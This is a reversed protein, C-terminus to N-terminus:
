ASRKCIADSTQQTTSRSGTQRISTPKAPFAKHLAMRTSNSDQPLRVQKLSPNKKSHATLNELTPPLATPDNWYTRYMKQCVRDIISRKTASLGEAGGLLVECLSLVYSCKARIPDGDATSVTKDLDLPNIADHSGPSIVVTSARLEHALARYEREPDIILIKTM